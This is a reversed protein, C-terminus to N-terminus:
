KPRTIIGWKADVSSVQFFGLADGSLNTRPNAPPPSFMGGDNNIARDLDSTYIYGARTLSLQEVYFTDTLAYYVPAPFGEISEQILKDDAYFLARGDENELEGNRFFNWQYYDITNPPETAYLLLQYYRGTDQPSLDNQEELDEKREQDLEVVLSDMPAVRLLTETATYEKGEAQVILKYNNGVIGGFSDVSVYLGETEDGGLGIFFFERLMNEMNPDWEEIKVIADAVGRFDPDDYLGLSKSILVPYFRVSDTVLAQIVIRDTPAQDVDLQIVEECSFLLPLSM